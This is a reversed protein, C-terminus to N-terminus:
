QGSERLVGEALGRYRQIDALLAKEEATRKESYLREHIKQQDLFSYRQVFDRAFEPFARNSKDYGRQSRVYVDAWSVPGSFAVLELGPRNDLDLLVFGNGPHELTCTQPPLATWVGNPRIRIDLVLQGLADFGCSVIDDLGDGDVDIIDLRHFHAMVPALTTVLAGGKYLGIRPNGERWFTENKMTGTNVRDPVMVAFSSKQLSLYVSLGDRTNTSSVVGRSQMWTQVPQPRSLVGVYEVYWTDWGFHLDSLGDKQFTDHMARWTNTLFIPEQESAFVYRPQDDNRSEITSYRFKVESYDVLGQRSGYYKKFFHRGRSRQYGLIDLAKKWLERARQMNGTRAWAEGPDGTRIVRAFNEPGCAEYADRARAWEGSMESFLGMTIRADLIANKEVPLYSDIAELLWSMGVHPENRGYGYLVGMDYMAPAFSGELMCVRGLIRRAEKYKGMRTLSVAMDYWIAYEDPRTKLARRFANTAYVHMGDYQYRLGAIYNTLAPDRFRAYLAFGDDLRDLAEHYQLIVRHTDFMSLADSEDRLRDRFFAIGEEYRGTERYEVARAYQSSGCASLLPLCGAIGLALINWSFRKM